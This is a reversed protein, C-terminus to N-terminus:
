SARWAQSRCTVSCYRATARRAALPKGCAQCKLGIRKEARRAARHQNLVDLRAADAPAVSDSMFLRISPPPPPEVPIELRRSWDLLRENLLRLEAKLERVAARGVAAVGVPSLWGAWAEAHLAAQKLWRRM